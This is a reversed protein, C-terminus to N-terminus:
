ISYKIERSRLYQYYEEMKQWGNKKRTEENLGPGEGEELRVFINIYRHKIDHWMEHAHRRSSKIINCQIAFAEAVHMDSPFEVYFEEAARKKTEQLLQTMLNSARSYAAYRLQMLADDVNRRQVLHCVRWMKKPSCHVSQLCHYVEKRKRLGTEPVVFNPGWVVKNYYEWKEPTTGYKRLPDVPGEEGDPYEDLNWEPAYYLKPKVEQFRQIKLKHLSSRRRWEETNSVKVPVVLETSSGSGYRSVLLFPKLSLESVKTVISRCFMLISFSPYYIEVNLTCIFLAILVICLGLFLRRDFRVRTQGKSLIPIAEKLLESSTIFLQPDDKRKDASIVFEGYVGLHDSYNLGSDGPIKGLRNECNKLVISPKGSSNMFEKTAPTYCNDPRDCTMGSENDDKNQLVMPRFLWADKLQSNNVIVRYGLDEPELNFDGTLIVADASNSTHKVFQSLEFAQSLRHPLYLDNERNYEAHLHTTYFNIRFNEVELEVMGVVKGGFWDGRHVHHAFGNLSYRHMITSVIPYRTFVCVGSGTFGSHFYFSYPYARKINSNIQDYDNEGWIEQLAVIDYETRLLAEILKMIRYHRDKSGIPWPQPLAWCNLTLVRLLVSM